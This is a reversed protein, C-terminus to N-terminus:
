DKADWVSFTEKSGEENDDDQAQRGGQNEDERAEADLDADDIMAYMTPQLFEKTWVEFNLPGLDGLEWNQMLTATEVPAAVVRHIVVQDVGEEGALVSQLAELAAGSYCASRYTKLAKTTDKLDKECDQLMKQSLKKERVLPQLSEQLKSLLDDLQRLKGIEGSIDKILQSANIGKINRKSKARREFAKVLPKLIEVTGQATKLEAGGVM